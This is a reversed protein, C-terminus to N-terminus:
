SEEDDKNDGACVKDAVWVINMIVLGLLMLFPFIDSFSEPNRIEFSHSNFYTTFVYAWGLLNIIHNM